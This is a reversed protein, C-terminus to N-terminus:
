VLFFRVADTGPTKVIDALCKTHGDAVKKGLRHCWSGLAAKIPAALRRPPARAGSRSPNRLADKFIKGFVQGRPRAGVDKWFFQSSCAVPASNRDVSSQM